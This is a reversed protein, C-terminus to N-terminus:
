RTRMPPWLRATHLLALIWIRQQDIQYVLRYSPHLILERTGAVLGISGSYPNKALQGMCQSFRSDMEIAARPNHAHLYDWIDARDQIAEPTWVINM